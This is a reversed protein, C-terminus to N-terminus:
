TRLRQEFGITTVTLRLPISAVISTSVPAVSDMILTAFMYLVLYLFQVEQYNSTSDLSIPAHSAPVVLTVSSGFLDLVLMWLM